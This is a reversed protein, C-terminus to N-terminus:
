VELLEINDHINGIVECESMQDKQLTAYPSRFCTFQANRDDFFVQLPRPITNPLNRGRNFIVIDGEFIKNGNKDCLGVYQGVTEADVVRTWKENGNPREVRTIEVSSNDTFWSLNGYIWEGNDVRKGRFIYERM